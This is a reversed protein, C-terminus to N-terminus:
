KARRDRKREFALPNEHGVKRLLFAAVEDGSMEESAHLKRDLAAHLQAIPVKKRNLANRVGQIAFAVRQEEPWTAWNAAVHAVYRQKLLTDRAGRLYVRAWATVSKAGVVKKLDDVRDERMAKVVALIAERADPPVAEGLLVVLDHIAFAPDLPPRQADEKVSRAWDQWKRTAAEQEPTLRPEKPKRTAAM